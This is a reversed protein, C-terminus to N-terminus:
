TNFSEVALLAQGRRKVLRYWEQEVLGARVMARLLRKYRRWSMTQGVILHYHGPTKSPRLVAPMDIDFLAAHEGNSLLSTFLDGDPDEVINECRRSHGYDDECWGEEISVTPLSYRPLADTM